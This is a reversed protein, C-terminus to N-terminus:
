SWFEGSLVRTVTSGTVGVMDAIEYRPLDTTAFTWRVLLAGHHGLKAKRGRRINEARSVPQLHSPNVCARVRCLHDLQLGNPIPGREREYVYRHAYGAHNNIDIRGYGSPSIQGRWLWCEDPAGREFPLPARRHGYIVSLPKGKVWGKSADNRPALRTRQGCGCRCFGYPVDQM